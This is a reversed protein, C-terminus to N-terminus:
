MERRKMRGDRERMEGKKGQIRTCNEMKDRWERGRRGFGKERKRGERAIDCEEQVM